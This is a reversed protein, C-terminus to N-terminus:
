VNDKVYQDMFLLALIRLENNQKRTMCLGGMWGGYYHDYERVENLSPRFIFEFEGAYKLPLDNCCFWRGEIDSAIKEALKYYQTKNEM